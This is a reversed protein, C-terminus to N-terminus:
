LAMTLNEFLEKSCISIGKINYNSKALIKKNHDTTKSHYVNGFAHGKIKDLYMM